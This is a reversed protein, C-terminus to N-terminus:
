GGFATYKRIGRAWAWRAVVYFVLVWAAQILLGRWLAAGSTRGLYISVPFFL